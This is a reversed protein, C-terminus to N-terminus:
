CMHLNNNMGWMRPNEFLKMIINVKVIVKNIRKYVTSFISAALGDTHIMDGLYKEEPSVEMITRGDNGPNPRSRKKHRGQVKHIWPRCLKVQWPLVEVEEEDLNRRYNRGREQGPGPYLQAEHHQGSLYSLKIAYTRTGDSNEGMCQMM